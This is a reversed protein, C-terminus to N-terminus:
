AILAPSMVASAYVNEAADCIRSTAFVRFKKNTMLSHIFPLM